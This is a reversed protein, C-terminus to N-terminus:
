LHALLAEVHRDTAGRQELVVQRARVGRQTEDLMEGVAAALGAADVERVADAARFAAMAGAFNQTWPGVLVAKGLAAPEIMDSGRQSVGLDVLSRGVFVVDALAYWKRLEGMSDGLVVDSASPQASRLGPNSRRVCGFGAEAIVEAVEDFRQPHRPAIVLRLGAREELLRRYAELVLVEEGPGPIGGVWPPGVGLGVGARLAVVGGPGEPRATDFKMSAFGEVDGCGVARFREAYVPEQALVRELKGFMRRAVPGLWRYRSFSKTTMRGNGVLVPIWRQVCVAVFNPWVELEMLMVAAPRLRDLFRRVCRSLDLPFRVCSVGDTNAFLRQVHAYGTATTTSVVVSVDPRAVRLRRVLEVTAAAEGVSVAHILVCEGEVAPVDGDRAALAEAAKVRWGRRVKAGALLAGYVIDALTAVAGVNSM